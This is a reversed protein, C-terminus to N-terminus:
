LRSTGVGAQNLWGAEEKFDYHCLGAGGAPVNLCHFGGFELNRAAAFGQLAEM